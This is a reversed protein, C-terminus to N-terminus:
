ILGKNKYHNFVTDDNSFSDDKNIFISFEFPMYDNRLIINRSYKYAISLIKEPSNNFNGEQKFNVKDSIFDFALGDRCKELTKKIVNEVYVYNDEDKLKFNFIGSAIAYDFSGDFSHSLFDGTHFAIDDKQYIEKGKQILVDVMDIGCYSYKKAKRSLVLNLDGFGCGIDLVRKNEFNYQSTLIDFRIDQKGKNWGLSKPSYGFEKFRNTYRNQVEQKDEESLEM